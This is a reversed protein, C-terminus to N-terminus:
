GSLELANLLPVEPRRHLLVFLGLALCLVLGIVSGVVIGTVVGTSLGIKVVNRSNPKTASGPERPRLLKGLNQQHFGGIPAQPTPDGSPGDGVIKSISPHVLYPEAGAEPDWATSWSHNNLSFMGLGQAYM